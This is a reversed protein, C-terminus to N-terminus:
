TNFVLLRKTMLSICYILVNLNKRKIEGYIELVLYMAHHKTIIMKHDLATLPFHIHIVKFIYHAKVVAELETGGFHYPNKFTGCSQQNESLFRDWFSKM